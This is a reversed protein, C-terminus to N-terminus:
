GVTVRFRVRWLYWHAPYHVPYGQHFNSLQDKYTNTCDVKWYLLLKSGKNHQLPRQLGHQYFHSHKTSRSNTHSGMHSYDNLIGPWIGSLFTRRELEEIVRFFKSKMVVLHMVLFVHYRRFSNSHNSLKRTNYKSHAPEFPGLVGFLCFQWNVFFHFVRFDRGFDDFCIRVWKGKM